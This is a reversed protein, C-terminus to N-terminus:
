NTNRNKENTQKNIKLGLLKRLESVIDLTAMCRNLFIEAKRTNGKKELMRHLSDEIAAKHEIEEIVDELLSEIFAIIEGDLVM